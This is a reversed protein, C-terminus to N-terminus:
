VIENSYSECGVSNGRDGEKRVEIREERIVRNLLRTIDLVWFLVCFLM